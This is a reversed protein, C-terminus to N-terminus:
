QGSPHFFVSIDATVTSDRPRMLVLEEDPKSLAIVSVCFFLGEGWIFFGARAGWGLLEEAGHTAPNQRRLGIVAKGKDGGDM